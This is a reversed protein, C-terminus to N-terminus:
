LASIQARVMSSDTEKMDVDDKTHCKKWSTLLLCQFVLCAADGRLSVAVGSGSCCSSARTAKRLLFM